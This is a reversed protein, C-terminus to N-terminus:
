LRKLLDTVDWIASDVKEWAPHEPNLQGRISKLLTLLNIM